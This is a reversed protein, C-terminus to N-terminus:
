IRKKKKKELLLRCVLYMPSQLESTHEESRKAFQADSQPPEIQYAYVWHRQPSTQRQPKALITEDGGIFFRSVRRDNPPDRTAWTKDSLGPMPQTAATM